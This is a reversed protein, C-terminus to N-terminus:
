LCEAARLVFGLPARRLSRVAAERQGLLGHLLCTTTGGAAMIGGAGELARPPGAARLGIRAALIAGADEAAGPLGAARLGTIAAALTVGGGGFGTAGVIGTSRTEGHLDVLFIVTASPSRGSLLVPPMRM